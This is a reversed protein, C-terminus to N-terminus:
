KLAFYVIGKAVTVFANKKREKKKHRFLIPAVKFMYLNHSCPKALLSKNQKLNLILCKLYSIFLILVNQYRRCQIGADKEYTIMILKSSYYMKETIGIKVFAIDM